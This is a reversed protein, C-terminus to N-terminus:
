LAGPIMHGDCGYNGHRLRLRFTRLLTHHKYLLDTGRHWNLQSWQYRAHCTPTETFLLLCLFPTTNESARANNKLWTGILCTQENRDHGMMNCYMGLTDRTCDFCVKTGIVNPVGYSQVDLDSQYFFYIYWQSWCITHERIPLIQRFTAHSYTSITFHYCTHM